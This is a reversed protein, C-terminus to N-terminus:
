QCSTTLLLKAISLRNDIAVEKKKLFIDKGESKICMKKMKYMYIAEAPAYLVNPGFNQHLCFPRM